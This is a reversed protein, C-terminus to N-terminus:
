QNFGHNNFYQCKNKKNVQNVKHKVLIELLIILEWKLEIEEKMLRM